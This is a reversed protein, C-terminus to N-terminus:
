KAYFLYLCFYFRREMQSWIRIATEKKEELMKNLSSYTGKLSNSRHTTDDWEKDKCSIGVSVYFDSRSAKIKPTSAM